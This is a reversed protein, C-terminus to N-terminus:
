MVKLFHGLSIRARCRWRDTNWTQRNNAARVQGGQVVAGLIVAGGTKGRSTPNAIM